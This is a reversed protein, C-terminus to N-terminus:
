LRGTAAVWALRLRKGPESLALAGEAVRGPAKAALKLLPRAQWAALFAPRAPGSVRGVRDLRALGDEALVAIAEARGDPLPAKGRAELEPVARLYAALGQAYGADRARAAEAASGDLARVAVEMLLGGTRELYQAFQGADEFPARDIDSRRAEVLTDLLSAGEADLARALPTAVEHRRVPGGARIEELVDRWWQLRMEAIMPEATVWPARAVEVNFAYIPFLRTRAAVPAAMAAAFRDPDGREVIRACAILDDDFEM